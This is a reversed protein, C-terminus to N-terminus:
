RVRLIQLRRAGQKRARDLRGAPELDLGNVRETGGQQAPKRQFRPYRRQEPFHFFARRFQQALVNGVLHCVARVRRQDFGKGSM